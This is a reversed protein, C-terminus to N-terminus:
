LTVWVGGFPCNAVVQQNPTVTVNGHVLSATYYYYYTTNGPVPLTNHVSYGDPFDIRYSTTTSTINTIGVIYNGGSWEATISTRCDSNHKQAKTGSFSLILLFAIILTKM